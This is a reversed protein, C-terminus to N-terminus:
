GQVPVELKVKKTGAGLYRRLGLAPKEIFRWSLYALPIVILSAYLANVYASQAPAWVLQQIPWAYIYVGYSIDGFKDMDFHPLRYALMLLTYMLATSCAYPFWSTNAFYFASYVLVACLLWNLPIYSRNVWFFSGVIFYLLPEHFQTNSGFLPVMAYNNQVLLFALILSLNAVERTKFLGFLGLLFVAIYCRLEAPLTWTSGNTSGAFPRDGFVYPLNYKWDWLTANWLNNWPTSHFYQALSVSTAIPGIVFVAVLSYVIVAPYLRLSRSVVFDRLSRNSISATVLFGSIAFFGGVALSGIWAHPLILMTLPDSGNGSIPFSHGFLVTFALLFRLVTFNNDRHGDYDCLRDTRFIERLM